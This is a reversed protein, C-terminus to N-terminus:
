ETSRKKFPLLTLLGQPSQPYGGADCRIRPDLTNIRQPHISAQSHDPLASSGRSEPSEVAEGVSELSNDVAPGRNDVSREVSGRQRSNVPRGCVRRDTHLVAEPGM